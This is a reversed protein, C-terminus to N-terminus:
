LKHDFVGFLVRCRAAPPEAMEFVALGSILREHLGAEGTVILGGAIQDECSVCGSRLALPRCCVGALNRGRILLTILYRSPPEDDSMGTASRGRDGYTRLM